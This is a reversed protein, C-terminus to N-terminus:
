RNWIKLRETLSVKRWISESNATNSAENNDMQKHRRSVTGGKEGAIRALERNTGFGKKSNKVQGGIRGINAYYQEGYLEKMRKAALKGGSKSGAM